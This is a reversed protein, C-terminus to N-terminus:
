PGSSQVRGPLNGAHVSSGVVPERAHHGGVLDRPDRDERPEILVLALPERAGDASMVSAMPSYAACWPLSCASKPSM